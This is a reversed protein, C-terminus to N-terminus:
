SFLKQQFGSRRLFQSFKEKFEKNKGETKATTVRTLIVDDYQSNTLFLENEPSFNIYVM